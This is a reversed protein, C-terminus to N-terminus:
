CPYFIQITYQLCMVCARVCVSVSAFVCVGVGGVDGLWSETTPRVANSAPLVIAPRHDMSIFLM